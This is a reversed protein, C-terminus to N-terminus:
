VCMLDRLFHRPICSIFTYIKKREQRFLRLEKGNCKAKPAEEGLSTITPTNSPDTKRELWCYVHNFVHQYRGIASTKESQNNHMIEASM